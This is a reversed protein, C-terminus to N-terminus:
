PPSAGYPESVTLNLSFSSEIDGQFEADPISDANGQTGTRRELNIQFSDMLDDQRGGDEEMFLLSAQKGTLYLDYAKAKPWQFIGKINFPKGPPATADVTDTLKFAAGSEDILIAYGTKSARAARIPDDAGFLQPREDPGQANILPILGFTAWNVRISVKRLALDRPPKGTKRGLEYLCRRLQNMALAPELEDPTWTRQFLEQSKEQTNQALLPAVVRRNAPPKKSMFEHKQECDLIQKATKQLDEAWDLFDDGADGAERVAQDLETAIRGFQRHKGVIAEAHLKAAYDALTSLDPKPKAVTEAVQVAVAEVRPKLQQYAYGLGGLFLAALILAAWKHRAVWQIRRRRPNVVQRAMQVPTPTKPASPPPAPRPAPAAKGQLATLGVLALGKAAAEQPPACRVLRSSGSRLIPVLKALEPLVYPLRSSGGTLIVGSIQGHTKGANKIALDVPARFRAIMDGCITLFRQRDLRAQRAGQNSLRLTEEAFSRGRELEEVLREKLKRAKIRLESEDAPTLPGSGPPLTSRLEQQVAEDVLRGGLDSDEESALIEIGGGPTGQILAINAAGGGFDYVLYLEGHKVTFGRSFQAYAIAARPEEAPTVGPFGSKEALRVLAGRRMPNWGAPCGIVTREVVDALRKVNFHREVGERFKELFMAALDDPYNSSGGDVSFAYRGTGILSKFDDYTQDPFKAADEWARLGFEEITSPNRSRLVTETFPRGIIEVIEPDRQAGPDSVLKAVVTSASGFDVGLVYRLNTM